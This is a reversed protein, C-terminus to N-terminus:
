LTSTRRIQLRRAMTIATSAPIWAYMQHRNTAAVSSGAGHNAIAVIAITTSAGHKGSAINMTRLIDRARAAGRRQIAYVHNPHAIYRNSAPAKACTAHAAPTAGRMAASTAATVVAATM